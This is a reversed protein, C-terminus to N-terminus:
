AVPIQSQGAVADCPRPLKIRMTLHSERRLIGPTVSKEGDAVRTVPFVSIASTRCSAYLRNACCQVSWWPFGLIDLQWNRRKDAMATAFIHVQHVTDVAAGGCPRGETGRLKLREQRFASVVIGHCVDRPNQKILISRKELNQLTLLGGDLGQEM